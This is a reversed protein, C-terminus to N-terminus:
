SNVKVGAIGESHNLFSQNIYAKACIDKVSLVRRPSIAPVSGAYGMISLDAADGPDTPDTPRRQCM